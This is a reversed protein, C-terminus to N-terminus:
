ETTEGSASVRRMPFCGGQYYKDGDPYLTGDETTLNFAYRGETTTEFGLINWGCASVHPINGEKEVGSYVAIAKNYEVLSDPHILLGVYGVVGTNSDNSPSGVLVKYDNLLVKLTFTKTNAKIAHIQADTLRGGPPFKHNHTSCHIGMDAAAGPPNPRVLEFSKSDFNKPVKAVLEKAFALAMERNETPEGGEIPILGAFEGVDDVRLACEVCVHDETTCASGM